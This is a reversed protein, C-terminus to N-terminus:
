RARDKRAQGDAYAANIQDYAENYERKSIEGQAYLQANEEHLERRQEDNEVRGAFPNYKRKM